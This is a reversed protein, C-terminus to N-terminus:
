RIRMWDLGDRATDGLSIPTSALNGPQSSLVDPSPPNAGEYAGKSCAYIAGTWDMVFARNGTTGKHVPWAVAAYISEALDGDVRKLRGAKEQGGIPSGDEAPLFVRFLYGAREFDGSANRSFGSVLTERLVAERDGPRREGALEMLFGFEGEGDRDTDRANSARWAQEAAHISRLTDLATSENSEVRARNLGPLAIAATTLLGAVGGLGGLGGTPSRSVTFIGQSDAVTWAVSPDLNRPLTGLPDGGSAGGAGTPGLFFANMGLSLDAHMSDYSLISASEPTGRLANRFREGGGPLASMTRRLTEESFAVVAFGDGIWWGLGMGAPVNSGSFSFHVGKRGDVAVENRYGGSLMPPIKALAKQARAADATELYVATATFRSWIADLGTASRGEAPFQAIAFRPGFVDLGDKELDFGQDRLSALGGEFEARAEPDLAARVQRLMEPGDLAFLSFAGVDSPFLELFRRDVSRATLMRTLLDQGGPSDLFTTVVLNRGESRVTTALGRVRHLGLAEVTRRAEAPMRSEFRQYIGHLDLHLRLADAPNGCREMSLRFSEGVPEAEERSSLRQMASTVTERGIGFLLADGIVTAEVVLNAPAPAFVRYFPSSAINGKEVRVGSAAIQASMLEFFAETEQASGRVHIGALLRIEPVESQENPVVDEICLVAEGRLQSLIVSLDPFPMNGTGPRGAGAMLEAPFPFSGSSLLTWFATEKMRAVAAGIDPLHVTLLSSPDVAELLRVAPIATSPDTEPGDLGAQRQSLVTLPVPPPPVHTLDGCAALLLIGPFLARLRM